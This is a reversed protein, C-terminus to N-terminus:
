IFYKDFLDGMTNYRSNNIINEFTEFSNNTYQKGWGIFSFHNMLEANTGSVMSTNPMFSGCPNSDCGTNNDNSCNWYVIHPIDLNAKTFRDIIISHIKENGYRCFTNKNTFVVFVLSSHIHMTNSTNSTNSDNDMSICISDIIMDFTKLINTITNKNTYNYLIEVMEVFKGHCGTLNVWTPINDMVMIRQGIKSKESILCCMGIANYLGDGRMYLSIDLIPIFHELTNCKKSFKNWQSNLLAIQYLINQEIDTSHTRNKVQIIKLAQKVFQLPSFTHQNIYSKKFNELKMDPSMESMFLYEKINHACMRRDKRIVTNKREKFSNDINFISHNHQIIEDMSIRAPIIESWRNECKKIEPIDLIKSMMSLVKRYITKCKTVAKVNILSVDIDIHEEINTRSLIIPDTAQVWQIAMKEFIWGYKSNERPIWKCALSPYTGLTTYKIYDDYLRQNLMTMAYKCIIDNKDGYKQVYNCFYKVDKFCGYGPQYICYPANTNISLSFGNQINQLQEGSFMMAYLANLGMNPYYKWWKYIMMYTLDREGKGYCIDRTQAILKYLLKQLYVYDAISIATKYKHSNCTSISEKSQEYGIYLSCILEEYKESYQILNLEGNTRICNYYIHLISEKYSQISSNEITELKQM